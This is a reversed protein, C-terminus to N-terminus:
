DARLARTPDIRMARRAPILNALAAIGLLLGAASGWAVPDAASVGYLAGALAQTALAALGSGIVLGIAALTLGQRVVLRLVAAPRAGIAMRIGIERTRRSVSFAIVGYVGIAALLLALGSFVGVLTAAVRVPFLTAAIQQRMTQQEMLLLGPELSQLTRRLDHVLAADDGRTRALVVQYSAPRQTTPLFIAPGAAEGVTQLKHDSVVGVIDIPRGSDLTREFVREGVARRGPWYRAAMTENIVAVRPRDPTDSAAFGRGDVVDVGLTEFYGPSVLAANISAGMEDPSRQHGPVAVNQRNFNFSFPVRSATAVHEVGPLAALRDLADSWFQASREPTYGNMHPDASVIALGTSRFGVEASLSAALSRLLLAATILLVTTVAVQGVVLLDRLSWRRGAVRETRGDGRLAGVLSARSARLAPALGALLGTAVSAAMTFALVTTNLRLDLSLAIPLPLDFTSLLRTLWSALALGVLAGLGALVLGETLLQQLLRARGAGIALRISIERQRASARALLMGAVNACAILLVLSVAAMTGTVVWAIIGDADPHVRTEGSPRLTVRRDANTQPHAERLQGAVLALNARAQEITTGRTLRAKAFLWRQGRRDLRSTGTPSPVAENIGAPEVDEVYRVPVWLEPALMPVLGTFDAGIVGAIAYAQGRIRIPQGIAAADAGLERRWYRESLVVVRPAGAAADAPQITRGLRAPVGLVSFYNGTVVEGLLLRSRDGHAVAAFMPSFAAIGEFVTAHARYDELDPLSSTSYLDGDVGSTYLDVLRSPEAVPLPRLLLADVVAFIATNFGIGLGLSLVAVATFGPSRRLWRLAYRVDHRLHSLM